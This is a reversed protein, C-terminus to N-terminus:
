QLVADIAAFALATQHAFNGDLADHNGPPAAVVTRLALFSMLGNTM